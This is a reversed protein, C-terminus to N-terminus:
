SAKLTPNAQYLYATLAEGYRGTAELCAQVQVVGHRALWTSLDAFGAAQNRFEQRQVQGAQRLSVQFTQQAIDIGLIPLAM